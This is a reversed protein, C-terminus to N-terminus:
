KGLEMDIFNSFLKDGDIFYEHVEKVTARSDLRLVDMCDDFLAKDLGRLSTLAFPWIYSNYLGLLFKRVTSAQGTDNQAVKALRHLAPLGNDIAAQKETEQTQIQQLFDSIVQNAPAPAPTNM